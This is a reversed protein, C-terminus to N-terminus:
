ISKDFPYVEYINGVTIYGEPIDVRIGGSNILALDINISDFLQNGIHLLADSSYNCLLNEKGEKSLVYDCYGITDQTIQHVKDCYKKLTETAALYQNDNYQNNIAVSCSKVKIITYHSKEKCSSFGICLAFIMSFTIITNAKM